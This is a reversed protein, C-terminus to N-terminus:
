YDKVNTYSRVRETKMQESSRRKLKIISEKSLSRKRTNENDYKENVKKKNKVNLPTAFLQNDVESKLKCNHFLKKSKQKRKM